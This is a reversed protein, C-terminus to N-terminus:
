SIPNRLFKCKPPNNKQFETSLTMEEAHEELTSLVAKKPDLKHAMDEQTLGLEEWAQRLIAGLKFIQYGENFGNAFESDHRQNIYQQLDSM